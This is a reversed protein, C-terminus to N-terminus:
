DRLIRQYADAVIAAHHAWTFEAARARRHDPSPASAPDDLLRLATKTWD